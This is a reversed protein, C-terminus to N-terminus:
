KDDTLLNGWAKPDLENDLLERRIQSMLNRSLIIKEDYLCTCIGELALVYEDCDIVEKIQQAHEPKFKDHVELYIGEIARRKELPSKGIYLRFPEHTTKDEVILSVWSRKPEIKLEAVVQKILEAITTSLIVDDKIFLDCVFDIALAPEDHHLFHKILRVDLPLLKKEAEKVILLIKENLDM